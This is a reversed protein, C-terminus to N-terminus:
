RAVMSAAAARDAASADDSVIIRSGRPVKVGAHDAPKVITASRTANLLSTAAIALQRPGPDSAVVIVQDAWDLAAGAAFTEITAAIASAGAVVLRDTPTIADVAHPRLTLEWAAAIAQLTAALSAPPAEAKVRRWLEEADVPDLGKWQSGFPEDEAVGHLDFVLRAGFGGPWEADADRIMLEIRDVTELDGRFGTWRADADPGFRRGTPRRTEVFQLLRLVGETYRGTDELGM